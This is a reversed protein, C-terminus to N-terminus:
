NSIGSIGSGGIYIGAIWIDVISYVAQLISTVIMPAAYKLLSRFVSGETLNETAVSSEDREQQKKISEIILNSMSPFAKTLNKQFLTSLVM